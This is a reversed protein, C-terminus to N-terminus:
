ALNSKGFEKQIQNHQPPTQLEKKLRQQKGRLCLITTCYPFSKKTATGRHPLTPLLHSKKKNNPMPTSPLCLRHNSTNINTQCGKNNIKKKKKKRRRKTSEKKSNYWFGLSPLDFILHTTSTHNTEQIFMLQLQGLDRIEIILNLSM